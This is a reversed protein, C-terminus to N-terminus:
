AGRGEPRDGQRLAERIGALERRIGALSVAGWVLMAVPVAFVLLNVFMWTYMRPEGYMM